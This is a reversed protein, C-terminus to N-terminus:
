RSGFFHDWWAERPEMGQTSSGPSHEITPSIDPYTGVFFIVKENPRTWGRPRAWGEVAEPSTAYELDSRLQSNTANAEEIELNLDGLEDRRQHSTAVQRAFDAALYVVLIGMLILLIQSFPWFRRTKSVTL